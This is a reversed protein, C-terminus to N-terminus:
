GRGGSESRHDDAQENHQDACREAEIRAVRDVRRTIETRPQERRQGAPAVLYKTGTMGPPPHWDHRRAKPSEDAPPRVIQEDAVAKRVGIRRRLEPDSGPIVRARALVDCM